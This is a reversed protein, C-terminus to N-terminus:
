RMIYSRMLLTPRPTLDLSGGQGPEHIRTAKSVDVDKSSSACRHLEDDKTIMSTLTYPVLQSLRRRLLESSDDGSARNTRGVVMKLTTPRRFTKFNM